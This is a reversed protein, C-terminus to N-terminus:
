HSGMCKLLFDLGRVLSQILQGRGVERVEDGELRKRTWRAKAMSAKSSGHACTISTAVKPGKCKSKSKGPVSRGSRWTATGKKESSGERFTGGLSAERLM